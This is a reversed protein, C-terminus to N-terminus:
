GKFNNLFNLINQFHDPLNSNFKVWKNTRPHIFELTKAHLLQGSLESIYNLFKENIKKFRLKKKGYKDDGIISSGKYELHVRIQHTRGTELKCEVLSVKPVENLVFTKLTKYNTIAKKGKYDSVSMIQRKYLNRTIFTEIRGNLPRIVGWVLCQYIRKLSHNEFQESLKFHSFNNKAVVLLGSTNKDIRHVIGPRLSGNISSLNNSYKYKLANVLTNEVNGAGPHVVMGIPKNIVIIDNDEFLINLSIRNPVIKNTVKKQFNINIQDNMRIKSSPSYIIIKNIKVFGDVILKKIYTRSINPIKQTLFVDIRKLNEDKNVFFKM